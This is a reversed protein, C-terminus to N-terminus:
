LQQRGQMTTKWTKNSFVSDGSEAKESGTLVSAGQPKKQRWKRQHEMTKMIADLFSQTRRSLSKPHMMSSWLHPIMTGGRPIPVHAGQTKKQRWPEKTKLTEDPFGSDQSEAKESEDGFVLSTPCLTEGAEVSGRWQVSTLDVYEPEESLPCSVEMM